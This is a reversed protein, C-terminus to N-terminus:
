EGRETRRELENEIKERVIKPVEFVDKLGNLYGTDRLYTEWSYTKESANLVRTSIPKSLNLQVYEALATWGPQKVLELLHLDIEQWFRLDEENM